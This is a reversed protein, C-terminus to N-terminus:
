MLLKIQCVYAFFFFFFCYVVDCLKRPLRFYTVEQLVFEVTVDGSGDQQPVYGGSAVHPAYDDRKRKGSSM